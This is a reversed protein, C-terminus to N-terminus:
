FLCSSDRCRRSRFNCVTVAVRPNQFLLWLLNIIFLWTWRLQVEAEVCLSSYVDYYLDGLVSVRAVV